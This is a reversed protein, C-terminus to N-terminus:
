LSDLLNRFITEATKKNQEEQESEPRGTSMGGDVAKELEWAEKYKQLEDWSNSNKMCVATLGIDCANEEFFKINGNICVRDDGTTCIGIKHGEYEFCRGKGDEKSLHEPLTVGYKRSDFLSIVYNLISTKGRQHPRQLYIIKKKM